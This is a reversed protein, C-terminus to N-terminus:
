ILAEGEGSIGFDPGTRRWLQGRRSELLELLRRSAQRASERYEKEAEAIKRDELALSAPCWMGRVAGLPLADTDSDIAVFITLAEALEPQASAVEALLASCARSAAIVGIEGSLLRQAAERLRADVFSRHELNYRHAGASM